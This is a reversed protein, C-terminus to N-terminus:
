GASPQMERKTEKKGSDGIDSIDAKGGNFKGSMSDLISNFKVKISDLYDEGKKVIKNRSESGKDPAFLVGILAGAAIGALTGLVVKGSIM